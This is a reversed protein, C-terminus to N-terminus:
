LQIKKIENDSYENLQKIQEVTAHADDRHPQLDTQVVSLAERANGLLDRSKKDSEGARM